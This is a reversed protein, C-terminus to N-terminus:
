ALLVSSVTEIEPGVMLKYKWFRPWNKEAVSASRDRLYRFM